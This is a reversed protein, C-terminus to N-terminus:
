ADEQGGGEALLSDLKSHVMELEAIEAQRLDQIRALEARTTELEKRLTENEIQSTEDGDGAAQTPIAECGSRIRDLAAALRNEIDQLQGM